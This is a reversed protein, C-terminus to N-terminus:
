GFLEKKDALKNLIIKSILESNTAIEEQKVEEYVSRDIYEIEGTKENISIFKDNDPNEPDNIVEFVGKDELEKIGRAVLLQYMEMAQQHSVINNQYKRLWDRQTKSFILYSLVNRVRQNPHGVYNESDLALLSVFGFTALAVLIIGAPIFIECMLLVFGTVGSLTTFVTVVSPKIVEPPFNGIDDEVPRVSNFLEQAEGLQDLAQQHSLSQRPAENDIDIRLRQFLNVIQESPTPM